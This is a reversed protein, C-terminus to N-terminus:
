EHGRNWPVESAQSEAFKRYPAQNLAEIWTAAMAAVQILEKEIKDKDVSRGEIDADNLERAVEGVEEGLIRFRRDNSGYLMSKEGHLIHARTAEAQIASRTLDSLLLYNDSQMM